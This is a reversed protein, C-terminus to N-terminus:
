SNKGMKLNYSGTAPDKELKFDDTSMGFNNLFKNGLEKLSSMMEAKDLELKADMKNEIRQITAVETRSLEPDLEGARKLDALAEDLRGLQEYALARKFLAKVYTPMLVIAESCGQICEEFKCMRFFASARNFQLAAKLPDSDALDLAESYKALAEQFNTSAFLRNGEEKLTLPSKAPPNLGPPGVANEEEVIEVM